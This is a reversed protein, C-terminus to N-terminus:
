APATFNGLPPLDDPGPLAPLVGPLAVTHAGAHAAYHAAQSLSAGSLLAVTLAATFSDGAGTTDVVASAAVPPVRELGKMTAVISGAAGLTLVIDSGFADRIARALSSDEARSDPPLGLMILAESRNPTIVDAATWAERALLKAPAPNLVALTGEERAVRLAAAATAPPIELSVVIADAERIETRFDEVDEESLSDCAGPAVIIRNDGDDEVLIFGTMTPRDRVVKVKSAAVGEEAWLAFAAQGAGDDGVATLLAVEAGLRRAAVAQNSGKGGHDTSLHADTLTEGALPM